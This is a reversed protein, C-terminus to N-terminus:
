KLDTYKKHNGKSLHVPYKKKNINLKKELARNPDIDLEFCLLLLYYYVDAIEEAIKKQSKAKLQLSEKTTLWQFNELLEAAELSLSIALNKPDHYQSWDRADRFELINQLLKYQQTKAM